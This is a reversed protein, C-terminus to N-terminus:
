TLSAYFEQMRAYAAIKTAVEEPDPGTKSSDWVWPAITDITCPELFEPLEEKFMLVAWVRVGLFMSPTSAIREQYHRITGARKDDQDELWDALILLGTNDSEPERVAALLLSRLMQLDSPM